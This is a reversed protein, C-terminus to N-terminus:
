KTTKEGLDYENATLLIDLVAEKVVELNPFELLGRNLTEKLNNVKAAFESKLSESNYDDQFCLLACM